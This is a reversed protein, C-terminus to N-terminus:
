DDKFSWLILFGACIVLVATSVWFGIWLMM